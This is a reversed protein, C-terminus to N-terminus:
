PDILIALNQPELALRDMWGCRRHYGVSCVAGLLADYVKGRRNLGPIMPGKSIMKQLGRYDRGNRKEQVSKSSLIISARDLAEVVHVRVCAFFRKSMKALKELIHSHTDNEGTGM